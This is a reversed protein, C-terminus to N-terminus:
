CTATQCCVFIKKFIFFFLKSIGFTLVCTQKKSFHSSGEKSLIWFPLLGLQLLCSTRVSFFVTSSCSVSKFFMWHCWKLLVHSLHSSLKEVSPNGTKVTHGINGLAASAAAGAVCLCLLHWEAFRVYGRGCCLCQPCHSGSGWFLWLGPFVNQLASVWIHM